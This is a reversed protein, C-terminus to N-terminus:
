GLDNAAERAKRDAVMAEVDAVDLGHCRAIFASDLKELRGIAVAAFAAARNSKRSTRSRNPYDGRRVTMVAGDIM